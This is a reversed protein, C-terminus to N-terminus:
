FISKHAIGAASAPCSKLASQPGSPNTPLTISAPLSELTPIEIVKAAPSSVSPSSIKAAVRGSSAYFSAPQNGRQSYPPPSTHVGRRDSVSVASPGWFPRIDVRHRLRREGDGISEIMSEIPSSSRPFSDPPLLRYCLVDYLSRSLSPLVASSAM